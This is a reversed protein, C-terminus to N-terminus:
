RVLQRKPARRAVEVAGGPPRAIVLCEVHATNPFMDFPEIPSLTWGEKVLAALDRAMAMPNCSVYALASPELKLVAELVGPELGRRAPDVVVKPATGALRPAIEPMVELVPGWVFEAPVRNLRAAEKARRVAGEVEEVGLAFGTRRAAPLAMGGVGSYLDVFSDGERLELGDMVREYLVEAMAPHTQFFDGPGVRYTMDCLREEITEKGVLPVVGVVGQDDRQFIANGQGDNLHLWVGVIEPVGRAIQEALESLARDRRGAVLTVLVEGTTHSARLVASRLVGRGGEYPPIGLEITHHALSVMTRRLIPAAVLCEPVPVVERSGRGWAGVKIRGIDSVGFGVKIVHRFDALGGPSPVLPLIEAKVGNQDLAQQIIDRRADAQGEADLHMLPCGGCPSYRECPPSVRRPHPQEASQFDGRAQHSGQGTVRVRATEGPIGGFVVLPLKGRVEVLADGKPMWRKPTVVVSAM